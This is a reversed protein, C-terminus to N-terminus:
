KTKLPPLEEDAWVEDEDQQPQTNLEVPSLFQMFLGSYKNSVFYFLAFFGLLIMVLRMNAASWTKSKQRDKLRYSAFSQSIRAKALEGDQKQNYSKIKSQLAEEQPNYYRPQYRFERTEPKKFKFFM